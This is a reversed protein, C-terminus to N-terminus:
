FIWYMRILRRKVIQPFTKPYLADDIRKDLQISYSKLFDRNWIYDIKHRMHKHAASYEVKPLVHVEAGMTELESQLDDDQWGLAIVPQAYKTMREIFGTRVLVRVPFQISIIILVRPKNNTKQVM